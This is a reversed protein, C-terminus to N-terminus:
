VIETDCVYVNMRGGLFAGIHLIKTFKLAYRDLVTEVKRYM